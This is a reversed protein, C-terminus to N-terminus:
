RSAPPRAWVSSRRCISRSGGRTGCASVPLGNVAGLVANIQDRRSTREDWPKMNVFIIAANTQDREPHLGARRAVRRPEVAPQQKLFAEIGGVVGETRERSADDPLAVLMAFYGKDESPIFGHARQAGARLAVRRRGWLRRLVHPSPDIV